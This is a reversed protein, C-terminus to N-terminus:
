NIIIITFYRAACHLPTAKNEKDWRNPDAGKDLLIKAIQADGICCAFHLPTRGKIDLCNPEAGYSDLLIHVNECCRFWSSLLLATNIDAPQLELIILM